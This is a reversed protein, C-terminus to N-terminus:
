FTDLRGVDPCKKMYLHYNNTDILTVQGPYFRALIKACRLRAFGAGLVIFHKKM